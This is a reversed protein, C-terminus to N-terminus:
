ASASEHPAAAHGPKSGRSVIRYEKPTIGHKDKFAKHFSSLSTYGVDMGISFISDDTKLLREQAEEIRYKNLFHSFNNYKLVRNIVSRLRYEQVGLMTALKGITLGAQHYPADRRMLELLKDKLAVDKADYIEKSELSRNAQTSFSAIPFESNFANIRFLMVNIALISPFIFIDRIVKVTAGLESLSDFGMRVLVNFSVDICVWLWFTGLTAVFPVRLSRRSELLDQRYELVALGLTHIYIGINIIQPIIHFIFYVGNNELIAPDTKYFVQGIAKLFFYAACLVWAYLPVPKEHRFLAFAMLWIVGPILYSIRGYIFSAWSGAPYPVLLLHLYAITSVAFILLLKGIYTNRQFLLSAVALFIAQSTAFLLAVQSVQM